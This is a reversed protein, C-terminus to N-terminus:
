NVPNAVGKYEPHNKAKPRIGIVNPLVARLNGTILLSPAHPGTLDRKLGGSDVVLGAQAGGEVYMVTRADLPLHLIQQVFSYAEVPMRSHLFLIRGQGDQAIASISYHPGGPYWLIRRQSNVMRYNQIVTDYEAIRARWDPDDRDIIAANALGPSKPGAVFFAGFRDMIRGNNVYDGSRMYGTSTRNDPLYMSANIAASFGKETAWQALNRPKEGDQSAAALSFDFHEPDIRLVAVKADDEGLRLECFELGQRLEQWQPRGKQDLGQSARKKVRSGGAQIPSSPLQLEPSLQQSASPCFDAWLIIVCIIVSGLRFFLCSLCVLQCAIDSLDQRPDRSRDM